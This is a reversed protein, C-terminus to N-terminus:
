SVHSNILTQLEDRIKEAITLFVESKMKFCTTMDGGNGGVSSCVRFNGDKVELVSFSKEGSWYNYHSCNKIHKILTNWLEVDSHDCLSINNEYDENVYNLTISGIFRGEEVEFKLEITYTLSM